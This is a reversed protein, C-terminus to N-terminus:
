TSTCNSLPTREVRGQGAELDTEYALFAIFVGPVLFIKLRCFVVHPAPISGTGNPLFSLSIVVRSRERQISHDLYNVHIKPSCRARLAGSAEGAAEINPRSRAATVIGETADM